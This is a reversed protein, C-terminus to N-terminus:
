SVIKATGLEPRDGASIEEKEWKTLNDKNLTALIQEVDIKEIASISSDAVRLKEFNTHRITM